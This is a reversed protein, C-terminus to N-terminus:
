GITKDIAAFRALRPQPRGSLFVMVVIGKTRINASVPANAIKAQLPAVVPVDPLVCPASLWDSSPPAEDSGVLELLEPALPELPEPELEEPPAVPESAELPWEVDVDDDCFSPPRM